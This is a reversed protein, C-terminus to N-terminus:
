RRCLERILRWFIGFTTGDEIEIRVSRSGEDLRSFIMPFSSPFYSICSVDGIRRRDYNALGEASQVNESLAAIKKLCADSEAQRAEQGDRSPALSAQRDTSLTTVRTELEIKTDPFTILSFYLDLVSLSTLIPARLLSPPENVRSNHKFLNM